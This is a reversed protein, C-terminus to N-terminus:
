CCPFRDLYPSMKLKILDAVATAKSLAFLRSLSYLLVISQSCHDDIYELTKPCLVLGFPGKEVQILCIRPTLSRLQSLLLDSFASITAKPFLDFLPAPM